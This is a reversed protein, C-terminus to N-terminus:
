QQGVVNNRRGKRIDIRGDEEELSQELEVLAAPIMKNLNFITRCKRPSAFDIMVINPLFRKLIAGGAFSAPDVCLPIREKVVEGMGGRWLERLEDRHKRQWMKKNREEISGAVGTTTWYMMGMVQHDGSAGGRMIRLQKGINEQISRGKGATTLDTGGKGWYQIGQYGGDYTDTSDYLNRIGVIGGPGILRPDISGLGGPTFAVIVKGKLEYLTKKNLNGGGTYLVGDLESICLDAIHDWNTCKDFKLILFEDTKSEVFAKAQQLIQVLGEGWTGYKLYSRTVRKDGELGIVGRDVDKKTRGGHYTRLEVKKEGHDTVRAGAIRLDFIRVGADAQGRISLGQTKENGGGFMIGADHSGAFVIENLRREAGLQYYEVM